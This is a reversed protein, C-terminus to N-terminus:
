DQYFEAGKPLAWIGAETPAKSLLQQQLEIVLGYAAYVNREILDKATSLLNQRQENSITAQQNLKEEYATDLLYETVEHAIFNNLTQISKEIIVKPLIWDNDTDAALKAVVSQVFGNFANLRALYDEADSLSEIRHNTVIRNPVDILPGNIQNIIFPSLGMWTD